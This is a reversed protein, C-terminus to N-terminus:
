GPLCSRGQPDFNSGLPSTLSPGRFKEAVDVYICISKSHDASSSRFSFSFSIKFQLSRFLVSKRRSRISKARYCNREKRIKAAQGPSGSKAQYLMGFSGLFIYWIVVFYIFPSSLLGFPRFTNWITLCKAL